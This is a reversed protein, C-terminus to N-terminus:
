ENRLRRAAAEPDIIEVFTGTGLEFGAISTLRPVLDVYAHAADARPFNMFMWNYSDGLQLMAASAARLLSALENLEGDDFASMEGIHRKPVLWQQYAFSSGHPALWVFHQTERIVAGDPACLPCSAAAAFADREREIRPPTFPLPMVQSHVHPISSGARAGENKFVATYAADRHARYRDVYMRVVDDAHEISEFRADHRPSEVIVEAQEVSPYKNPFVRVRWPDGSSAITPPTDSEHGPCFPCREHLEDGFASPRAARAPAFLIPEGTLLNRRFTM